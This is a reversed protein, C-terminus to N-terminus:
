HSLVQQLLQTSEMVLKNHPRLRGPPFRLHMKDQILHSERLIYLPTTVNLLYEIAREPNNYAAKM